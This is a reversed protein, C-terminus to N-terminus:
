VLNNIVLRYKGSKTREIEKELIIEIDFFEGWREKQAALIKQEIENSYNEKVKLHFEVKGIHNQIIQFCEVYTWVFKDISITFGPIKDGSKTFLFEQNRGDLHQIVLDNIRGFDQTRYRIFPMVKNWYSTGVIEYNGNEDIYNESFGYITDCKYSIKKGDYIGWACNSRETMGYQFVVPVGLVEKINDLVDITVMESALFVAKINPLKLSNEKMYGLLYNINSPYAHFFEGNFKKIEEYITKIWENNLHYPSIFLRNGRITCPFENKKKMGDSGMRIIKKNPKYGFKGWQYDFFAWELRNENITRYVKIGNGTSGGSTSMKLKDIKFKDSIFDLPRDMITKKDLYPFRKLVEIANEENIDKSDIGLDLNRYYPVNNLCNKLQEALLRKAQKQKDVESLNLMKLIDNYDNGYYIKRPISNRLYIAKNIM